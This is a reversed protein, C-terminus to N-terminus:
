STLTESLYHNHLTDQVRNVRMLTGPPELLALDGARRDYRGGFHPRQAVTAKAIQMCKAVSQIVCPSLSNEENSPTNVEHLETTPYFSGM